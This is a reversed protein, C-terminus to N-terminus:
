GLNHSEICHGTEALIADKMLNDLESDERIAQLIDKPKITKRKSHTASTQSLDLVESCLYDLVGCLYVAAKKSVRLRSLKLKKYVRSPPFITVSKRKLVGAKLTKGKNVAKNATNHSFHSNKPNKTPLPSPPIIQNTIVPTTQQNTIVPTTQQNTIVPNSQVVLPTPGQPVTATNVFSATQTNPMGNNVNIISPLPAKPYHRELIRRAILNFQPQNGIQTLLRSFRCSDAFSKFIENGGNLLFEMCELADNANDQDREIIRCIVSVTNNELLEIIQHQLQQRFFSKVILIMDNKIKKDQSTLLIVLTPIFNKNIMNELYEFGLCAQQVLVKSAFHKAEDNFHNLLGVIVILADKFVPNMENYEALIKLLNFAKTFTKENAM